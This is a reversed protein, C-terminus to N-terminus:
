KVIPHFTSPDLPPTFSLVLISFWSVHSFLIILTFKHGTKVRTGRLWNNKLDDVRYSGDEEEEEEERWGRDVFIDPVIEKSFNIRRRQKFNEKLTVKVM